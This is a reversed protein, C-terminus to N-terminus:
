LVIDSKSYIFTRGGNILLMLSLSATGTFEPGAFLENWCNVNLLVDLEARDILKGIGESLTAILGLTRSEAVTLM